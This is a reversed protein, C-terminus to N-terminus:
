EGRVDANGGNMIGVIREGFGEDEISLSSRMEKGIIKGLEDKNGYQYFPIRYHFCSNKFKKITNESADEAVFVLKAKGQKISKEVSFEGAKIKGAKMALGILGYVRNPM